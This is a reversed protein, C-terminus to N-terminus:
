IGLIKIFYYKWRYYAYQTTSILPNFKLNFDKSLIKWFKKLMYYTNYISYFEVIIRNIRQGGSRSMIGRLHYCDTMSTYFLRFGKLRAQLIFDTDERYGNGNSYWKDVNINNTIDKKMLIIIHTYPVEILSNELIRSEVIFPFHDQPFFDGESKGAIILENNINKINKIKVNILRGSIFDIKENIIYNMLVETYVDSLYVDDEGLLIYDTNVSNFAIERARPAGVREKVVIETIIVGEKNDKFSQIVDGSNDISGNNVFIIEYVYKSKIYSPITVILEKSRNYTPIIVTINRM